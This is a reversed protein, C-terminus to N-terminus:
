KPKREDFHSFSGCNKCSLTKSPRGYNLSLVEVNESGCKPCKGAKGTKSYEVYNNIWTNKKDM